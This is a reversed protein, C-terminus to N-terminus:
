FRLVHWRHMSSRPLRGVELLAWRAAHRRESVLIPRAQRRLSSREALLAEASSALEETRARLAGVESRLGESAASLQAARAADTAHAQQEALLEAQLASLM